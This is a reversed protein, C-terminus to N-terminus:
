YSFNIEQRSGVLPSVAAWLVGVIISSAFDQQGQSSSHSSSIRSAVEGAAHGGAGDALLYLRGLQALLTQHSPECLAIADENHERVRGTDSGSAATSHLKMAEPSPETAAYAKWRARLTKV